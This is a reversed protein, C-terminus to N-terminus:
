KLTSHPLTVRPVKRATESSLAPAAFISTTHISPSRHVISRSSSRTMMLKQGAVRPWLELPDGFLECCGPLFSGLRSAPNVLSLARDVAESRETAADVSSVDLVVLVADSDGGKIDPTEVQTDLLQDCLAIAVGLADGRPIAPLRPRAVCALPEPGEVLLYGCDLALPAYSSLGTLLGADIGPDVDTRLRRPSAPELKDIYPHPM